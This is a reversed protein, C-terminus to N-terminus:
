TFNRTVAFNWTKAIFGTITDAGVIFLLIIEYHGSFSRVVDLFHSLRSFHLLPM